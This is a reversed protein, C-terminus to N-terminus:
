VLGKKKDLQYKSTMLGLNFYQMKRFVENEANLKYCQAGKRKRTEVLIGFEVLRPVFNSVTRWHVGSERALEAISYDLEPEDLLFDLLKVEPKRGVLVSLM